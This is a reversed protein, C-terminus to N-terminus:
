FILSIHFSFIFASSLKHTIIESFIDKLYFLCYCHWMCNLFGLILLQRGLSIKGILLFYLTNSPFLVFFPLRNEKCLNFFPVLSLISFFYRLGHGCPILFFFLWSLDSFSYQICCAYGDYTIIIIIMMLTIIFFLFFFFSDILNYHHPLQRTKYLYRTKYLVESNSGKRKWLFKHWNTREWPIKAM